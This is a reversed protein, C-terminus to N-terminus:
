PKKPKTPREPHGGGNYLAQAEPSIKVTDVPNIDQEALKEEKPKEVKGQQQIAIGSSINKIEM